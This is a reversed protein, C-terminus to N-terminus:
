FAIRTKVANRPMLKDPAHHLTVFECQSPWRTTPSILTAQPRQEQHAFPRPRWQGCRVTSPITLRGPANASYTAKGTLFRCLNGVLNGILGCGKGLGHRRRTLDQLLHFERRSRATAIM